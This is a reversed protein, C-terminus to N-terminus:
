THIYSDLSNDLHRREDYAIQWGTSYNDIEALEPIPREDFFVTMDELYDSCAREIGVFEREGKQDLCKAIKDRAKPGSVFIRPHTKRNSLPTASNGMQVSVSERAANALRFLSERISEETFLDKGASPSPVDLSRFRSSLEQVLEAALAEPSQAFHGLLWPWLGGKSVNYGILDASRAGATTDDQWIERFSAMARSVDGEFDGTLYHYSIFESPRVGQRIRERLEGLHSRVQALWLRVTRIGAQHPIKDEPIQRAIVPSRAITGTELYEAFERVKSDLIGLHMRRVCEELRSRRVRYRELLVNEQFELLETLLGGPSRELTLKWEMVGSAKWFQLVEILRTGISQLLKEGYLLSGRREVESVVFAGIREKFVDAASGSFALGSQYLRSDQGLLALLEKRNFQRKGADVDQLFEQVWSSTSQREPGNKELEQLAAELADAVCRDIESQSEALFQDAKGTAREPGDQFGWAPLLEDIIYDIVASARIEGRPYFLCSLGVATFKRDDPDFDMMKSDRYGLFGTGMLFLFLGGMRYLRLPPSSDGVWGASMLTAVTFPSVGAPFADTDADPWGGLFQAEGRSFHILDRLCAHANARPKDETAYAPPLLFLGHVVTDRGYPPNAVRRCLYAVDLFMGSNTGGAFTGAIYISPRAGGGSALDQYLGSLMQQLEQVRRGSSGSSWLAVRGYSRLGGAGREAQNLLSLEPMWTLRDGTEYVLEINNFLIEIRKRIRESVPPLHLEVRDGLEPRFVLSLFGTHWGAEKLWPELLGAARRSLRGERSSVVHSLRALRPNPFRDKLDEAILVGETFRSLLIGEAPESHTTVLRVFVKRRLEQVSAAADKLPAYFSEIPRRDLPKGPIDASVEGQDTEIFLFRVHDPCRSGCTSYFFRQAEDLMKLGSSGIGVYLIRDTM